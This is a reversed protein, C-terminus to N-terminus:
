VPTRAKTQASARLWVLVRVLLLVGLVAGYTLPESVDKKVRLYYHVVGLAGAVYSLKHLLRWRAGGLRKVMAIPSTIALALLLVFALMGVLIFPHKVVDAVLKGLDAGQDVLSYTLLHLLAYFFAYLGLPRRMPKLAALGAVRSLPTCALSAVLLVLAILGLRNLVNEVPDAGLGGLAAQVSIGVVPTLSSVHIAPRLWPTSTTVM